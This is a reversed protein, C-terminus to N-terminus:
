RNKAAEVAEREMKNQYEVLIKALQARTTLGKPALAGDMGNIIGQYIAWYMSNKAWAAVEGSDSFADDYTSRLLLEAGNQGGSFAFLIKMAEQRTVPAKPDFGDGRGSVLGNAYAWAVAKAYYATEPVDPFPSASMNFAPEGTMRYLTLVYDGRSVPENPRFTGDPNGKFIGRRTALVIWNAAWHGATDSFVIDQEAGGTTTPALPQTTPPTATTGPDTPTETPKQTEEPKTTETPQTPKTTDEPQTSPTPTQTTPQSPQTTTTDPSTPTESPQETPTTTSPQTPAPTKPKEVATAGSLQYTIENESDGFLADFFTFDYSTIDKKAKFTLVALTGDSDLESTTIAALVAGDGRDPNTVSMARRLLAGETVSECEMTSKDYGLAFQVVNIGPNGSIDVTVTFTDGAQVGGGPPQVTIVTDDAAFVATSLLFAALAAASLWASLRNKM